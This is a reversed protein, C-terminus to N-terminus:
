PRVSLRTQGSGDANMFYIEKYSDRNSHFAIRKGDPSWVPYVDSFTNSTLQKLDSGDANMLYVEFDGDRNSSFLIKKGDHSWEPM